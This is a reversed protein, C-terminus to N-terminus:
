CVFLFFFVFFFLYFLFLFFFLLFFAFFALLLWFFFFFFFFFFFRSVALQVNYAEKATDAIQQFPQKAEDSMERWVAGVQKTFAAVQRSDETSARKREENLFVFFASQPRKPKLPEDMLPEEKEDPADDDDLVIASPQSSSTKTDPLPEQEIEIDSAETQNETLVRFPSETMMNLDPLSMHSNETGLDIDISVAQSQSQFQSQSQSQSFDAAQPPSSPLIPQSHVLDLLQEQTNSAMFGPQSTPTFEIEDDSTSERQSDFLARAVNPSTPPLTADKGVAPPQSPSFDQTPAFTAGPSGKKETSPSTAQTADMLQSAGALEDQRDNSKAQAASVVGSGKKSSSSLTLRDQLARRLQKSSTNAAGDDEDESSFDLSGFQTPHVSFGTPQPRPSDTNFVQSDLSQSMLADDDMDGGYRRPVCLSFSCALFFLFFFFFSFGALFCAAM